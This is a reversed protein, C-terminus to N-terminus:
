FGSASHAAIDGICCWQYDSASPTPARAPYFPPSDRISCAMEHMIEEEESGFIAASASSGDAADAAPVRNVTDGRASNM